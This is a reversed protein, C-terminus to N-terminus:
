YKNESTKSIVFKYFFINQSFFMQKNNIMLLLLKLLYNIIKLLINTGKVTHGYFVSVVEYM